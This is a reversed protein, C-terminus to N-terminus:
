RTDFESAGHCAAYCPPDCGLAIRRVGGRLGWWTGRVRDRLEALLEAEPGLDRALQETVVHEYVGEVLLQGAVGERSRAMVPSRVAVAAVGNM